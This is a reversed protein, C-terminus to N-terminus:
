AIIAAVITAYSIILYSRLQLLPTLPFFLPLILLIDNFNLRRSKMLALATAEADAM